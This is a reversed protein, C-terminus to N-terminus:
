GQPVEDSPPLLDVSDLAPAKMAPAKKVAAKKVAAKKVAAKKATARKAPLPEAPLAEGLMGTLISDAAAGAGSSVGWNKMERLLAEKARAVQESVVRDQAWKLERARLAREIRLMQEDTVPLDHAESVFRAIDERYDHGRRGFRGPVVDMANILDVGTLVFTTGPRWATSKPIRPPREDAPGLWWPRRLLINTGFKPIPDDFHSVLYHRAAARQESDLGLIDDFSDVEIMSGSPDIRNPDLRWAKAFETASPTGLYISSHVFDHEVAEVTRHRWIDQMTLAGLSEGFLVLKPRDKDAMGRLYGTIAHMLARNQEIALGTRTLSMSSPLMSYQMTAIACNGLTMYELAEAFVYNIYGSGTPSAFVLVEREFARTRILEDMILDVRDEVEPATDLGVFLRIPDCAAPVGMVETIEDRTLAMNTFRRGERSLTDFPVHSSPSGSVFPSQPPSEYAPEVAAGGQEVRRVAYEYAAILGGGLIALSIVHGVPNSVVDYRPAVRSVGSAVARAVLREGAQLGLVGAGVGVAIASSNRTSVDAITTDGSSQAKRHVRQIEIASAAIGAPLAIPVRRVWGLRPSREAVVDLSGIVASLAAGALAARSARQAIVRIAGRRFREDEHPPIARAIAECGAAAIANTGLAFILAAAASPEEDSRRAIARGLSEIVSQSATVASLTTASIVGTAIAQDITRRPQLGPEFSPGVAAAAAFLAAREPLSRDSGLWGLFGLSRQKMSM